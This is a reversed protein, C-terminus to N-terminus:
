NKKNIAYVVTAIGLIVLFFLYPNKNNEKEASETIKRIKRGGDPRVGLDDDFTTLKSNRDVYEKIIPPVVAAAADLGDVADIPPTPKGETETDRAVTENATDVEEGEGEKKNEVCNNQFLDYAELLQASSAMAGGRTEIFQKVRACFNDESPQPVVVPTSMKNVYAIVSEHEANMPKVDAMPNAAVTETEAVPLSDGEQTEPQTETVM